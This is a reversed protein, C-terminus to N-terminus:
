KSTQSSVSHPRPVKLSNNSYRDHKHQVLDDVNEEFVENDNESDSDFSDSDNTENNDQYDSLIVVPFHQPTSPSKAPSVPTVILKLEGRSSDRSVQSKISSQKSYTKTEDEPLSESNEMDNSGNNTNVKEKNQKENVDNEDSLWWNVEDHFEKEQETALCEFRKRLRQVYSLQNNERNSSTASSYSDNDNDVSIGSDRAIKDM